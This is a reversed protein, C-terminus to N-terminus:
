MAFPLDPVGYKERFAIARRQILQYRELAVYLVAGKRVRRGHWDWGASVHLALDEALVSKGDGPKGYMASAEGHGLLDHVLWEKSSQAELECFLVFRGKRELQIIKKDLAANDATTVEIMSAGNAPYKAQSGGSIPLRGRGM